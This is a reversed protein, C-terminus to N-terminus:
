VQINDKFYDYHCVRKDIDNTIYRGKMVSKELIGFDIRRFAGKYKEIMENFIKVTDEVPNFYAGNRLASLVLCDYNYLIGLQFISEIKRRTLEM